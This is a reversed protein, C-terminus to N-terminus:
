LGYRRINNKITEILDVLIIPKAVYANAGSELCKEKDGKMAKATVAIVPLHQLAPDARIADLTEYGDMVPMMMDLLIVDVPNGNKLFALAKEGNKESYVEFGDAELYHQLAYINSDEDDVILVRGCYNM